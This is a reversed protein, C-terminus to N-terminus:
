FPWGTVWKLISGFMSTSSKGVSRLVVLPLLSRFLNLPFESHKGYTIFISHRHRRRYFSQRHNDQRVVTKSQRNDKRNNKCILEYHLHNSSWGALLNEFHRITMTGAVTMRHHNCNVSRVSPCHWIPDSPLRDSFFPSSIQHFFFNREMSSISHGM